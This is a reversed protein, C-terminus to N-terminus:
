WVAWSPAKVGAWKAAMLAATLAVMSSVMRGVTLDAKLVVRVAASWAETVGARPEVSCSAMMEAWTRATSAARMVAKWHEKEWASRSGRM